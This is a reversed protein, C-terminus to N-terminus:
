TALTSFEVTSLPAAATPLYPDVFGEAALHRLCLAGGSTPPATSKLLILRFAGLVVALRAAISDSTVHWGIPLADGPLNPEWERLFGGAIFLTTGPVQCRAQLRGFDSESPIDPLWDSVLQGTVNMLEIARWHATASPLPHRVDLERLADVLPGGGVLLVRHVSGGASDSNALWRQLASVFNSHKLLSGGIKIVEISVREM